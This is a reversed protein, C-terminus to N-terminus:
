LCVLSVECTAKRSRLPDINSAKFMSLTPRDKVFKRVYDISVDVPRELLDERGDKKLAANFMQQIQKYEMPWGLEALEGLGTEFYKLEHENFFTKAAFEASGKNPLQFQDVYALRAALTNEESDRIQAFTRTSSLSIIYTHTKLGPKGKDIPWTCSAAVGAYQWLVLAQM